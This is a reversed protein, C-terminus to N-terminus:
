PLSSTAAPSSFRIARWWLPPFISSHSPISYRTSKAISAPRGHVFSCVWARAAEQADKLQSAAPPFNPNLLFGVTAAQPVLDRVLGLRKAEITSSLLNIGTVNGRPQNLSAVLGREVPDATFTSVIPITATAAKAALASPEGGTSILVTVPRGVLEAALAPLRKYQGDAWRYEIAVNRNEIYGIEGLGRRFAEVLHASEDRARTSLFGVVPMTAQQARAALPWAAAGGLVTIFERRKV